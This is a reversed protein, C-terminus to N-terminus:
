AQLSSMLCKFQEFPGLGAHRMTLSFLRQFSLSASFKRNAKGDGPVCNENRSISGRSYKFDTDEGVRVNSEADSEFIV